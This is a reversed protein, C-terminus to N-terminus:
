EENRLPQSAGTIEFVVGQNHSGGINTTGFLNGHDDVALSGYPDGGDDGDRFDYLDTFKWHGNSPSLKFVSGYGYAGEGNTTGYLNGAADFTLKNYPGGYGGPFSHLVTLTWSAQHPSLKYVTGGGNVGGDFTGGYLNGTEDIVLGGLPNQGDNLGRFSYLVTEKWGSGSPSLKYVAGVGNAGGFSTTGYVNGDADLTVAAAPNVADLGGKFSYITSEVGLPSVKYVMGNGYFGGLLTTGYLNGAKDFVVGGIPENGDLGHGFSHVVREGGTPALWVKFTTGLFGGGETTGFLAGNHMALTGFAPGDGDLEGQFNYLSSYQWSGFVPTLRYVNGAGFAGGAYTTGYLAGSADFTPGGYPSAGDDGERTFTHIVRYTQSAAPQALSALFFLAALLSCFIGLCRRALAFGAEPQPM